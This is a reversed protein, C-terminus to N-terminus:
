KKLSSAERRAQEKRLVSFQLGAVARGAGPRARERADVRLTDKVIRNAKASAAQRASKRNWFVPILGFPHNTTSPEVHQWAEVQVRDVHDDGVIRRPFNM